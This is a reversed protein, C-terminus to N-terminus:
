SERLIFDVIIQWKQKDFAFPISFSTPKTTPSNCSSNVSTIIIKLM